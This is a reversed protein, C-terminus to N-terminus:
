GMGNAQSSTMFCEGHRMSFWPGRSDQATQIFFHDNRIHLVTNYKGHSGTVLRLDKAGDFRFDFRIFLTEFIRIKTFFGSIRVRGNMEAFFGKM